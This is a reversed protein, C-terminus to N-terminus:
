TVHSDYVTEQGAMSSVLLFLHFHVSSCFLCLEGPLKRHVHYLVTCFVSLHAAKPKPHTNLHVFGTSFVLMHQNPINQLM